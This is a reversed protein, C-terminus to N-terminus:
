YGASHHIIKCFGVVQEDCICQKFLGLSLREFWCRPAFSPMVNVVYETWLFLEYGVNLAQGLEVDSDLAYIQFVILTCSLNRGFLCRFCSVPSMLNRCARWFITYCSSSFMLMSYSLMMLVINSPAFLTSFTFGVWLPILSLLFSRNVCRCSHIFSM